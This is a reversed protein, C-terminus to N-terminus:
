MRAQSNGFHAHLDIEHGGADDREVEPVDDGGRDGGVKV